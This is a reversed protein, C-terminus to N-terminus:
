VGSEGVTHDPYLFRLIAGTFLVCKRPMDIFNAKRQIEVAASTALMDATTLVCAKASMFIPTVTDAVPGAADSPIGSFFVIANSGFSIAPCFISYM